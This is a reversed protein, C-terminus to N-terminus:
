FYIVDASAAMDSIMKDFKKNLLEEKIQGAVKEFPQYNGAKRDVIKFVTLTNVDKIVSSIDNLKLNNIESYIGPYMTTYSRFTSEDFILTANEINKVGRRKYDATVNGFNEGGILRKKIQDIMDEATSKGSPGDPVSLTIMEIKIIDPNRFNEKNSNYFDLAELDNIMLEGKSLLKKLKETRETQLYEYYIKEEYEVPGYVPLKKSVAEKRRENENKLDQLFNSYSIDDAIGHSKMLIQGSKIRNKKILM